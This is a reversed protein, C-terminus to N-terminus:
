HKYGIRYKVTLERLEAVFAEGEALTLRRDTEGVM